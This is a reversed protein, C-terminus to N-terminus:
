GFISRMLSIAQEVSKGGQVSKIISDRMKLLFEPIDDAALAQDVLQEASAKSRKIAKTASANAKKPKDRLRIYNSKEAQAKDAFLFLDTLIARNQWLVLEKEDSPQESKYWHTSHITAILEQWYDTFSQNNLKSLGLGQSLPDLKNNNLAVFIDPRRMALLRTAPCLPAKEEPLHTTFANKYANVFLSYHVTTVEGELPISELAEDLSQPAQTLLQQFAKSSKTSSFWEVDFPFLAPEHKATHKGSFALLDEEIMESLPKNQLTKIYSLLNLREDLSQIAANENLYEVFLAWPILRMMRIQSCSVGLVLTDELKKLPKFQVEDLLELNLDQQCIQHLQKCWSLFDEPQHEVKVAMLNLSLESVFELAKQYLHNEATSLSMKVPATLLKRMSVVFILSYFLAPM